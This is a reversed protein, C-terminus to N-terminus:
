LLPFPRLLVYHSTGETGHYGPVYGPTYDYCVYVISTVVNTDDISFLVIFILITNFGTQAETTRTDKVGCRM